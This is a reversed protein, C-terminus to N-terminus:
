WIHGRLKLGGCSHILIFRNEKYLRGAEHIKNHYFFHVSIGLQGPVGYYRENAQSSPHVGGWKGHPSANYACRFIRKSSIRVEWKWISKVTYGANKLFIIHLSTIEGYIWNKSFMMAPGAHTIWYRMKSYPVLQNRSDQQKLQVQFLGM